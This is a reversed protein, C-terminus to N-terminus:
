INSNRQLHMMVFLVVNQKYIAERESINMRFHLYIWNEDLVMRDQREALEIQQRQTLLLQDLSIRKIIEM